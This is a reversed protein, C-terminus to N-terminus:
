LPSPASSLVRTHSSYSLDSHVCDVSIDSELRLVSAGFPDLVGYTSDEYLRGFRKCLVRHPLSSEFRWTRASVHVQIM